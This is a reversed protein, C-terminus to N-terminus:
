ASITPDRDRGSRFIQLQEVHAARTKQVSDRGFLDVCREKVWKLRNVWRPLGAAELRKIADAVHSRSCGAVEAITEYSPILIRWPWLGCVLIVLQNYTTM